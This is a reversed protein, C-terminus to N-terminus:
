NSHWILTANIRRLHHPKTLIDRGHQKPERTCLSKALCQLLKGTLSMGAYVVKEILTPLKPEKNNIQMKIQTFFGKLKVRDGTFKEVLPM